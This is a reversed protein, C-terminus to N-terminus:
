EQYITEKIERARQTMKENLEGVPDYPTAPIAKSYERLKRKADNIKRRDKVNGVLYDLEVFALTEELGTQNIVRAFARVILDNATLNENDRTQVMNHANNLKMISEYSALWEEVCHNFTEETLMKAVTFVDGKDRNFVRNIETSHYVVEWRFLNLGKFQIPIYYGNDNCELVKDYAKYAKDDKKGKRNYYLTTQSKKKSREFGRMNDLFVFYHKAPQETYIVSSFDYRNVKGKFICRGVGLAEGLSEMAKIAQTLTLTQVNNGFYWKALSGMLKYGSHHAVVNWGDVAGYKYQNPYRLFYSQSHSYVVGESNWREGGVGRKLNTDEIPTLSEVDSYNLFIHVTDYM